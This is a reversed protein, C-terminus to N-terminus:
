SFQDSNKQKWKRVGFHALAAVLCLSLTGPEPVSSSVINLVFSDANGGSGWTWTYTGVNLGLSSFTQNNWTADGTISTGFVYGFPVQIAELRVIGIINTSGSSSNLYSDVSGFSSPGALSGEYLDISVFPPSGLVIINQNSNIIGNGGTSGIYKTLGALNLSGSGTAVVNSGVQSVNTIFSAQCTNATALFALSCLISSLIKM